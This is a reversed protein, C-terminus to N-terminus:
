AVCFENAEPDQMVVFYGDPEETRRVVGAGLEILRDVEADVATRRDAGSLGPAVKIDLHLRNKFLKAEPVQLFFIDPRDRVKDVLTRGTPRKDVPIQQADAWDDWTMFGDPVPTPFDYGGLAAKWFQAVREPEACDFVIHLDFATM